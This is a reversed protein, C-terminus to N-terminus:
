LENVLVYGLMKDHERGSQFSTFGPRIIINRTPDYYVSLLGTLLFQLSMYEENAKHDIEVFEAKLVEGKPRRKFITYSSLATILGVVDNFCLNKSIEETQFVETIRSFIWEGNTQKVKDIDSDMAVIALFPGRVKQGENNICHCLTAADYLAKVEKEIDSDRITKKVSIIGIVGEPPVIVNKDFRQYIPYNATDYVIIDLQKSSRDKEEQRERNNLGTKTSPRMIFGTLLELGGPLFKSLSERILAEVYRGDEGVHAAGQNRESPVLVAFQKYLELLSKVENSFYERVRKGDM